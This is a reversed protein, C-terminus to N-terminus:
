YSFNIILPELRLLAHSDVFVLGLVLLVPFGITIM